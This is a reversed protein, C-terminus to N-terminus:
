YLFNSTLFPQLLPIFIGIGVYREHRQLRDSRRKRHLYRERKNGANSQRYAARKHHEHINRGNNNLVEDTIRENNKLSTESTRGMADVDTTQGIPFNKSSSRSNSRRKKKKDERMIRRAAMPADSAVRQSSLQSAMVDRIEDDVKHRRYRSLVADGDGGIFDDLLDLSYRHSDHNTGSTLLESRERRSKIKSGEKPQKKSDHNRRYGSLVYGGLTDFSRKSRSLRKGVGATM